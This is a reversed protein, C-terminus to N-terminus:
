YRNMQKGLEYALKEELHKLPQHISGEAQIAAERLLKSFGDDVLELCTEGGDLKDLLAQIRAVTGLLASLGARLVRVRARPIDAVVRQPRDAIESLFDKADQAGHPLGHLKLWEVAWEWAPGDQGPVSVV